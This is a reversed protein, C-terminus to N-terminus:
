MPLRGAPREALVREAFDLGEEVRAVRADLAEIQARQDEIVAQLEAIYERDSRDLERDRDRRRSRWGGGWRGRFGFFFILPFVLWVFGHSM